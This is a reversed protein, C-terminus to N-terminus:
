CNDYDSGKIFPVASGAMAAARAVLSSRSNCEPHEIVYDLLAYLSDGLEKGSYGLELLDDGSIELRKLCFCDGGSIVSTLQRLHGSGYLVDAAAAACKGSEVGSRSLLRKWSLKSDPAGNEVLRCGKSANHVTASDLRLALLFDEVSDITGHKKLLACLGAWRQARNKPLRGIASLVPASRTDGIIGCLLGASIIDSILEPSGSLLTKELETRIREAALSVSLESCSRIADMTSQEIDFGLVASFRMARLMRLADESFRKEAEGVCRILRKEIDQAGGFPDFVLGSLPIAIANMTFDRRELDSRLDSIFRVNDPRRHDLYEGDCRFTTVEVLSGHEIVTVTGHKIGTPRSNEFVEMVQEPLASTCIDWDNPRRCMIIDRVCGGVLYASYGHSELRRLVTIVYKPPSICTM